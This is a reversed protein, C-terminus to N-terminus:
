KTEEEEEGEQERDIEGYTAGRSRFSGQLLMNSTSTPTHLICSQVYTPVTCLHEDEVFMLALISISLDILHPIFSNCLM